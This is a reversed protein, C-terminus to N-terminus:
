VPAARYFVTVVIERHVTCLIKLSM